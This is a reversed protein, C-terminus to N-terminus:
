EEIAKQGGVPTETQLQGTFFDLAEPIWRDWFSWTHAGPGENWVARMGLAELRRGFNLNGEYLTDERGCVYWLRPAQGGAAALGSALAMLDDRSGEVLRRYDPGWVCRLCSTVAEARVPDSEITDILNVIDVAGSLSAAASFLEPRSLAFKFAGYGGMSLGAVFTKDRKRSLPFVRRTYELLEEAIFTYFHDGFKMDAYFSREASPMIVALGRDNAYREISTFRTWCECSGAIGHLLYVTPLGDGSFGEPLIARFTVNRLLTDSRYTCTFTAM